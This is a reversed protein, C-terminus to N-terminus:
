LVYNIIKNLFLHWYAFLIVVAYLHRLAVGSFIHMPDYQEGSQLINVSHCRINGPDYPKNIARCIQCVLSNSDRVHQFFRCSLFDADTIVRDVGLEDM